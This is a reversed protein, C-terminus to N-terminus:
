YEEDFGGFGCRTFFFSVMEGFCDWDLGQADGILLTPVGM